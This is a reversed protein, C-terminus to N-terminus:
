LTYRIDPSEELVKANRGAECNAYIFYATLLGTVVIIIASARGDRILGAIPGM